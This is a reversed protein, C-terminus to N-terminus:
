ARTLGEPDGPIVSWSRGPISLGLHTRAWHRAAARTDFAGRSLVSFPGTRDTPHWETGQDSWPVRVTYYGPRLLVPRVYSSLYPRRVIVPGPRTAYRLLVAGRRRLTRLAAPYCAAVLM